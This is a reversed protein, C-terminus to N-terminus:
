EREEIDDFLNYLRVFKLAADEDVGGHLKRQGVLRRVNSCRLAFLGDFVNDAAKCLLCPSRIGARKGHLQTEDHFAGVDCPVDSAVFLRDVNSASNSIQHDRGSARLLSGFAQRSRLKTTLCIFM